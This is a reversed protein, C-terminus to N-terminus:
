AGATYAETDAIFARAMDEVQVGHRFELDMLRTRALIRGLVFLRRQMVPDEDGPHRADLLDGTSTVEFGYRGLVRQLFAVRMIRQEMGGGGGKFRFNVYNLRPEPGCLADVVSFHYGFRLMLHLYDGGLIAYSGLLRSDRPLIGASLRDFEEWDAHMVGEPWVIDKSSLGLWLSWMGPNRIDDPSLEKKDAAADFLGQGVDLVHLALPLHTRMRRGCGMARGGKGSLSFMEGVATEHCLRVVDHLSRCGRPSFDGAGPDKLSLRSVRDMVKALRTLAPTYPTPRPSDPIGRVRGLYVTGTHADVTVEEGPPVADLDPGLGVLVPLGLERAVSAFHGARSGSRALIAAVRHAVGTLAPSLSGVKLVDGKTVQGLDAMSPLEMVRGTGIGRSARCAGSLLVPNRPTAGPSEAKHAERQLPRSQVVHLGGGKDLVWEIDQPASYLEELEMAWAALRQSDGVPIPWDPGPVQLPEPQPDRSFTLVAPEGEGSVLTLGSGEVAYIALVGDVSQSRDLDRTYVVGAAKAKVMPMLLVAMPTEQDALGALVRYAVARPEYKSAIIRICAQVADKPDVDLLSDYQGAFSRGEDEARASSRAALLGGAPCLEAAAAEIERAIGGPMRGALVLGRMRGCLEALQDPRSLDVERLLRDLKPRLENSEMFYNCATTTLVRGPPMTMSTEAAALGLHHAKGGAREPQDAAAALDMVYPPTLDPEDLDLGLRVYFSIKRLYEPLDMHRTPSLVALESVLRRTDGLLREALRSVQAWDALTQGYHIDELEAIRTLCADDLALLRKFAEYRTRLLAGPAFVQFTWHKFLQALRM